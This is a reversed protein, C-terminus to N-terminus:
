QEDRVWGVSDVSECRDEQGDSQVRAEEVAAELEDGELGDEVEVTFSVLVQEMVTVKM